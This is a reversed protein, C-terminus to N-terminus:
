LIQLLQKFQEDISAIIRAAASFATQVVIMHSLEEDVNVSSQDMYQKQLLDRYSAENTQLSKTNNLEQSQRNIMKQAYDVLNSGTVGTSLAADAGLYDSRFAVTGGAQSTASSYLVSAVPADSGFLAAVLGTGSATGAGGTGTATFPGGSIKIDGGFRPNSAIDGPRLTLFGTSADLDVALGPVGDDSASTKLLKDVLDNEDDAPSISVQVPTDNGVQIEIYPDTTEYEGETLGLYALGNDGMGGAGSADLTINGRSEIILQGYSNRSATVALGADVSAATVQANIEAIIQDLADKITTGDIPNNTAADSLDITITTPGLSTRSEEFTLTFKDGGFATGGADLLDDIDSYGSLDATGKVQNQSYIGLWDQLTTATPLTASARLDVDGAAEQYAVDGFAFNVIRRVVEDSGSQVPLDTTVTGKQVLTTDRIVAPNVRIVSSFGIYPVPTSNTTDPATDAPVNGGEDTFLRLGQMDMRMAMKQALEDLMAQQRPVLDDRVSVLAGLKGGLSAGTVDFSNPNTAPNGGVYIGSASGPYFSTASLRTKDFYLTQPNDDALAVGDSTQVVMVGDGRVYFKVGIQDSLQHVAEDRSDELAASTKGINKTAKIQQNLQAIQQLKDNIGQITQEMQDQADNRMDTLMDAFDNIKDAVEKARSVVGKQLYTDEPSDALSAFQNKLDALKAAISLGEDPGGHFTEIQNLFSGQVDYFSASSVQTWFDRELNLDVTRLIPSSTIGAAQGDIAITHQIITKRTYGTTGVNSVNSSIVDLQQQATRLGALASTLGSITM